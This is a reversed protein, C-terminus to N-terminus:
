GSNLFKTHITLLLIDSKHVSIIPIDCDDGNQQPLEPVTADVKSYGNDSKHVSADFANCNSSEESAQVFYCGLKSLLNTGVLLKAPAGKQVQMIARASHGSRSM